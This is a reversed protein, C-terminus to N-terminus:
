WWKAEWRFGKPYMEVWGEVPYENHGVRDNAGRGDSIKVRAMKGSMLVDHGVQHTKCGGRAVITLECGM